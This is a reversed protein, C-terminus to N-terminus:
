KRLGAAVLVSLWKEIDARIFDSFEEPTSGLSEIGQAKLATIVADTKLAENADLSVKKVIDPPTAAPAFLGIWIGVDFGPMGQEAMTPVDPMVAARKPQAMALAKLSNNKVHPALTAAVNFMLTIRGALLDTLAQNSGAQYHVSLVKTGAKVNFLEAALHSATGAGSDGFTLSDPKAKALAVLERVNGAPVSPHAVLLNPVVGLLAIPTMDKGLNFSSANLAPNLTNAVTGMFLTYGDPAARAVTEAAMMSSNGPRDEVVVPQGFTQELHKAVLRALIDATSGPGFGVIIRVSNSPYQQAVAAVPLMSLALALMAALPKVGRSWVRMVCDGWARAAVADAAAALYAARRLAWKGNKCDKEDVCGRPVALAADLLLLPPSSADASPTLVSARAAAAGALALPAAPAEWRLRSPVDV